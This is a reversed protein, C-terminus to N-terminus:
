QWVIRETNGAQDGTVQTEVKSLTQECVQHEDGAAHELFLTEDGLRGFRFLVVRAQQDSMGVRKVWWAAALWQHLTGSSLAHLQQLAVPHTQYGYSSGSVIAAYALLRVHPHGCIRHASYPNSRVPVVNPHQDNRSVKM